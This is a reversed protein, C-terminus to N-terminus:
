PKRELNIGREAAVYFLFELFEGFERKTMTSTSSGLMVVGGDLGAALRGQEKRFGATLIAKWEDAALSQMKGNVPWQLQRAFADLLPWLAANQDLTRGPEQVIVHWGEPATRLVWDACRQRAEENVLFFHKKIGM